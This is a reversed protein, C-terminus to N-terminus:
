GSGDPVMMLVELFGGPVLVLVVVLWRPSGLVVVLAVLVMGSSRPVGLVVVLIM